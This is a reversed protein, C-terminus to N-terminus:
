CCYLVADLLGYFHHSFNAFQNQQSEKGKQVGISSRLVEKKTSGEMTYGRSFKVFM